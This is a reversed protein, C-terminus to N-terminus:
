CVPPARGASLGTVPLIISSTSAAKFTAAFFLPVAVFQEEISLPQVGDMACVQCPTNGNEQADHVAAATEKPQGTHTHLLNLGVQTFLVMLLVM